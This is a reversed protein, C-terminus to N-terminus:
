HLILGIKINDPNIWSTRQLDDFSANHYGADLLEKETNFIKAHRDKTVDIMDDNKGGFSYAYSVNEPLISELPKVISVSKTYFYFRTGPNDTMISVWKLFYKKSYIDGSDHIRVYKQKNDRMRSIQLNITEEFSAKKSEEYRLELADSVNSFNYMGKGAYCFKICDKAFPCTLQGSKSKYDPISFNVIKVDHLKATYKLKTNGTGLLKKM